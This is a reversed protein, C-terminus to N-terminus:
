YMKGLLSLFVKGDVTTKIRQQLIKRDPFFMGIFRRAILDYIKKEADSWNEMGKAEGTPFLQMIILFAKLILLGGM